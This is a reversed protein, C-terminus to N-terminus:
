ELYGELRAELIDKIVTTMNPTCAGPRNYPNDSTALIKPIDEKPYQLAEEISRYDSLTLDVSLVASNVFLNDHVQEDVAQAMIHNGRTYSQPLLNM